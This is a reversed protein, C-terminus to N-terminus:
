MAWSGDWLCVSKAAKVVRKQPKVLILRNKSVEAHSLVEVERFEVTEDVTVCRDSEEACSIIVISLLVFTEVNVKGLVGVACRVVFVFVRLHSQPQLATLPHLLVSSHNLSQLGCMIAICEPRKWCLWNPWWAGTSAMQLHGSVRGFRFYEKLFKSLVVAGRVKLVCKTVENGSEIV